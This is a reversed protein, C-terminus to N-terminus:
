GSETTTKPCGYKERAWAEAAELEAQSLRVGGIGTKNDFGRHKAYRDRSLATACHVQYFEPVLPDPKFEVDTFGHKVRDEEFEALQHATFGLTDSVLARAGFKKEGVIKRPEDADRVRKARAGDELEIWGYSHQIMTAYDVEIIEGTDERRFKYTESM